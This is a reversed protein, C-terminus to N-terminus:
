IHLALLSHQGFFGRGRSYRLIQCNRRNQSFATLFHLLSIFFLILYSGVASM